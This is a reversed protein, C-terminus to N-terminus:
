KEKSIRRGYYVQDVEIGEFEAVLPLHAWKEFGFKKLLNVSSTNNELIIAFLNKIELKPCISIAKDLLASAVGQHHHKKDVFYSVHATHRLAARGPRYPSISLFGLIEGQDEAILVPHKEANHGALWIERDDLTVPETIAIKQENIAQNYIDVLCTLDSEQPARIIM